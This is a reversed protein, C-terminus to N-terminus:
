AERAPTRRGSRTMRTVDAFTLVKSGAAWSTCRRERPARRARRWWEGSSDIVVGAAYGASLLTVV